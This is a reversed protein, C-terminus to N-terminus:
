LITLDFNIIVRVQHSDRRAGQLSGYSYRTRLWLGELWGKQWRYDLTINAERESASNENFDPVEANFGEAYNVFGSFGPVGIRDFDYSLGLLVAWQGARDFDNQM